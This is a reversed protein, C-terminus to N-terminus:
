TVENYSTHDVFATLDPLLRLCFKTTHLPTGDFVDRYTFCGYFYLIMEGSRYASLVGPTVIETEPSVIPLQLKPHIVGTRNPGEAYRPSFEAGKPLTRYSIQHDVNVAPTNGSNVVSLRFRTAYNEKLWVRSNQYEFPADAMIGPCLWARHELHFNDTVQRLTATAIEANCAAIRSQRISIRLGKRMYDAQRRMALFQLVSVLVLAATFGAIWWESSTKKEGKTCHNDGEVYVPKPNRFSITSL